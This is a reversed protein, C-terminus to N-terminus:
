SYRQENNINNNSVDEIRKVLVVISYINVM